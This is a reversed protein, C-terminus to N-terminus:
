CTILLCDHPAVRGPMRINGVWRQSTPPLCGAAHFLLRKMRNWPGSRRRVCMHMQPNHLSDGDAQYRERLRNLLWRHGLKCCTCSQIHEVEPHVPSDSRCLYVHLVQPVSRRALEDTLGSSSAAYPPGNHEMEYWPNAASTAPSLPTSVKRELATTM